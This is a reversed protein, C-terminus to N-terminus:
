SAIGIDVALASAWGDQIFWNTDDVLQYRRGNWTFQDGSTDRDLDVTDMSAWIKAYNRQFDLGYETYKSRHVAQVCAWVPVPAAFTSVWQRAANLARSVFTYYQIETPDISQFADNLLNSGPTL